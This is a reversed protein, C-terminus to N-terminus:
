SVIAFSRLKAAYVNTSRWKVVMELRKHESLRALVLSEEVARTAVVKGPLAFEATMLTCYGARM